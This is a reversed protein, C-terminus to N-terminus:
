DMFAGFNYKSAGDNIQNATEVVANKSLVPKSNINTQTNSQIKVVNKNNSSGSLRLHDNLSVLGHKTEEEPTYKSNMNDM